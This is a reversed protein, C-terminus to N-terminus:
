AATATRPKRPARKRPALGGNVTYEALRKQHEAVKRNLEDQLVQIKSRLSNLESYDLTTVDAMKERVKAGHVIAGHISMSLVNGLFM